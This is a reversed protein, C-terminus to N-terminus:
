LLHSKHVDFNTIMITAVMKQDKNGRGGPKRVLLMPLTPLTGPLAVTVTQPRLNLTATISM